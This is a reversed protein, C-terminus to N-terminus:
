SMSFLQFYLRNLYSVVFRKICILSGSKQDGIMLWWGEQRKYPFFPAQVSYVEADERELEVEVKIQKGQVLNDEDM